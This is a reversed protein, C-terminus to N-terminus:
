SISVLRIHQGLAGAFGTHKGNRKGHTNDNSRGEWLRVQYHAIYKRLFPGNDYIQRICSPDKKWAFVRM